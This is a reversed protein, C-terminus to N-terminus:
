GCSEPKSRIELLRERSAYPRVYLEYDEKSVENNGLYDDLFGTRTKLADCEFDTCYACNEFGKEIVCPRVPCGSDAHRGKNHCGACEVKDPPIEFGFLRKWGQSVKIKDEEGKINETYAPCIDCRYGCKSLIEKM